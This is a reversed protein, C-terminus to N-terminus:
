PDIVAMPCVPRSMPFGVGGGPMNAKLFGALEARGRREALFAKFRDIMGQRQLGQLKFAPISATCLPPIDDAPIFKGVVKIPIPTFTPAPKIINYLLKFHDGQNRPDCRQTRPPMVALFIDVCDGQTCPHPKLTATGASAGQFTTLALKLESGVLEVEYEVLESLAQDPKGVRPQPDFHYAHVRMQTGGNACAAALFCTNMVGGGL